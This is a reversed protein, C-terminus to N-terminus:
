VSEGSGRRGEEVSSLRWTIILLAARELVIKQLRAERSNGWREGLEEYFGFVSIM